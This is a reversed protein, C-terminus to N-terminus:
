VESQLLVQSPQIKFQDLFRLSKKPKKPRQLKDRNLHYFLKGPGNLHPNRPFIQDTESQRKRHRYERFIDRIEVIPFERSVRRLFNPLLIKRSSQRELFDYFM